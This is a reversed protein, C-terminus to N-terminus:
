DLPKMYVGSNTVLPAIWTLSKPVLDKKKVGSIDEANSSAAEGYDESIIAMNDIRVRGATKCQVTLLMGPVLTM